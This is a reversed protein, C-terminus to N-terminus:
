EESFRKNVDINASAPLRVMAKKYRKVTKTGRMNRKAVPKYIMTKVSIPKVGYLLACAASIQPKTATMAVKFVYTNPATTNLTKETVHPEILTTLLNENKIVTM